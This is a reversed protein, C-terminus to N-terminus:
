FNNMSDVWSVPGMRSRIENSVDPIGKTGYVGESNWYNNGDIWYWENHYPDYKWLDNTSGAFAPNSFITRGGIMWCNGQKDIWGTAEVRSSPYSNNLCYSNYSGPDMTTQEGGMWAWQNLSINYKWFDQYFGFIPSVGYGGFLYLNGLTDTWHMRSCMRGGPTNVSDFIGLTGYVGPPYSITDGTMWTWENTAINYKWLDNLYLDAFTQRYGGFLWLNGFPDTWCESNDRYRPENASDPVGKVGYHGPQQAVNPGKMWTWWGTSVDYKWLDNEQGGWGLGGFLWFNGDLDTWYASNVRLGPFNNSDPIGQTGYINDDYDFLGTGGIWAWKNTDINYKWMANVALPYGFSEDLYEGGFLYLDKGSSWSCSGYLKPVIISDSFHGKDYFSHLDKDSNGPLSDGYMWTWTGSQCMAHSSCFLFYLFWTYRMM